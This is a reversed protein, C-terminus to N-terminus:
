RALLKSKQAQFEADTLLGQDKLKALKVLEDAVSAPAVVVPQAPVTPETAAVVAETIPARYALPASVTMPKGGRAFRVEYTASKTAKATADLYDGADKFQKGAIHTVVDGVQLGAKAAASDAAVSKIRFAVFKGQRVDEADVGLAAHNPFTTGVPLKGGAASMFSIISNHFEPGSFDTRKMQGFAMQLEMWGSAQVRSIGNIEAVNFRFFRRPPTSYSNGMLMQGLVSQGFNMPAECILETQSSSIVTWRADICKSTLKGITVSPKDAFQVEAMGSPTVALYEDALVPTAALLLTAGAARLHKM